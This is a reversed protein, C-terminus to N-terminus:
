EMDKTAAPGVKDPDIGLALFNAITASELPLNRAKAAIAARRVIIDFGDITSEVRLRGDPGSMILQMWGHERDRRTSFYRLRLERLETWAIQRGGAGGLGIGDDDMAVVQRGRWWTRIGFFLFLACLGGLIPTAVAHAPIFLMPGGTLASGAAARVYDGRLAVPDYRHESM